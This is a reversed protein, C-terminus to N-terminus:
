PSDGSDHVVGTVLRAASPLPILLLVDVHAARMNKELTGVLAAPVGALFFRGNKDPM